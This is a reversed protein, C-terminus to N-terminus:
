FRRRRGNIKRCMAESANTTSRLLRNLPFQFFLSNGARTIKSDALLEVTSHGAVHSGVTTREQQM